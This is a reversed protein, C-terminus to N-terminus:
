HSSTLYFYFHVGGFPFIFVGLHVGGFSFIHVIHFKYAKNFLIKM